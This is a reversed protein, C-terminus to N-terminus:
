LYPSWPSRWEEGVRREESRLQADLSAQQDSSLGHTLDVGALHSGFGVNAILRAEERSNSLVRGSVDHKLTQQVILGLVVIPLLCVVGFEALWRRKQKINAHVARQAKM